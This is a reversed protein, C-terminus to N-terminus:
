DLEDLFVDTDHLLEELQKRLKKKQEAGETPPLSETQEIQESLEIQKQDIEKLKELEEQSLKSSHTKMEKVFAAIRDSAEHYKGADFKEKESILLESFSRGLQKMQQFIVRSQDKEDKDGLFYNYVLLGLALLLVLRLLWKIM